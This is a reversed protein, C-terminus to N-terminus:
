GAADAIEHKARLAEAEEARGLADLADATIGACDKTWPHSPGHVRALTALAAEGRRLADAPRQMTVELRAYNVHYRQTLAHEAGVTKEGIAIARRLHQEAEPMHGLDCFLRGLNNLSIAVDPHESGFV